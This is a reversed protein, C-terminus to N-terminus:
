TERLEIGILRRNASNGDSSAASVRLRFLDGATLSDLASGSAIALSSTTLQYCTATSVIPAAIQCTAFADVSIKHNADNSREFSLAWGISGTSTTGSAWHVAATIGGSTYNRPVLGRFMTVDGSANFNLWEDGNASCTKTAAGATPAIYDDANFLFLSDGSAM